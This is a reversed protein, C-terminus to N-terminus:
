SEEQHEDAEILRRLLAALTRREERSLATARRVLASEHGPLVKALAASGRETLRVRKVRQDSPDPRRAVLGQQELRAVLGSVNSVDCWLEAGIAGIPKGEPSSLRTLVGVQAGTLGHERFRADAGKKLAAFAQFVLRQLEVAEDRITM